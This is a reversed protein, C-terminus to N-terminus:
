RKDIGKDIDLILDRILEGVGHGQPAADPIGGRRDQDDPDRQATCTDAQRKIDKLLIM